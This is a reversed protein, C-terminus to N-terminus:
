EPLLQGDLMQKNIKDASMWTEHRDSRRVFLLDFEPWTLRSLAEQDNCDILAVAEELLEQLAVQQIEGVKFAAIRDLVAAKDTDPMISLLGLWAITPESQHVFKGIRRWEISRQRAM